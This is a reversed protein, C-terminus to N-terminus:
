IDNSLLVHFSSTSLCAITVTTTNGNVIYSYRKKGSSVWSSVVWTETITSDVKESVALTGKSFTEKDHLNFPHKGVGLDSIQATLTAVLCVSISFLLIKKM